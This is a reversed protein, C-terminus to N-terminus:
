MLHQYVPSIDRDKVTYPM